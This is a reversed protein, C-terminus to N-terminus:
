YKLSRDVEFRIPLQQMLRQYHNVIVAAADTQQTVSAQHPTIIIEPTAWFPHSHPLPEERFVDLFATAIYGEKIAQLLDDDVVHQGRGANILYGPSQMAKFVNIDFSNETQPTLPLLNILMNVKSAFTPLTCEEAYYCPIGELQQKSRRYGIVEYGLLKLQQAIPGGLAGLGVIGITLDVEAPWIPNWQPIQQSAQHKLFQKQIILIAMLVYRMMGQELSDLVIRTLIVGEPISADNVLHEVGAGLSSVLRLNKYTALVGPPHKWVVAMQVDDPYPINPHIWVSIDSGIQAEIALKLPQTDRDPVIIAIAMDSTKIIFHDLTQEIPQLVHM